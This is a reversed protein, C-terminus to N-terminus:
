EDGKENGAGAFLECDEERIDGRLRERDIALDVPTRGDILMQM